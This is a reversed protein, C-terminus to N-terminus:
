WKLTQNCPAGCAVIVSASLRSLPGYTSGKGVRTTHWRLRRHSALVRQSQRAKAASGSRLLCWPVAGRNRRRKENGKLRKTSHKANAMGACEVARVHQSAPTFSKDLWFDSQALCRGKEFVVDMLRTSLLTKKAVVAFAFCLPRFPHGGGGGKLYYIYEHDGCEGAAEVRAAPGAEGGAAETEGGAAARVTGAYGAPIKSTSSRKQRRM